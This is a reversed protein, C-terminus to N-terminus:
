LSRFKGRHLFEGRPKRTNPHEAKQQWEALLAPDGHKGVAFACIVEYKDQPVGLVEYSRDVDFGGMGHTYLGLRRAQLSLSM